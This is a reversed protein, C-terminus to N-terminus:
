SDERRLLKKAGTRTSNVHFLVEVATARIQCYEV